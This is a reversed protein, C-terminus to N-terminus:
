CLLKSLLQAATRPTRPTFESSRSSPRSSPPTPTRLSINLKNLVREADLPVLGSAAFSNKITPNTSQFAELRAHQYDMLFDHKDIHNYGRRALDSVFRGYARKVVAFCGVDLPQLLHSSHAPMCLPIIDNETCIRDFQPTLHSGHGDLILLRFRGRVRSNTHTIFHKELWRLGIEDTTWGNKSVEIRWDKPLIEDFWGAIAVKGKFVICPPLPYGDACISEIATVWERNGPQLLSRRGYYEARTVVKQSSILGMAFGTEDFNYIDEPQIGNEDIVSQVTAFWKRISKPDENLARQYDYRRSFRTRLEPRRNIFTSPWNKGVTTPLQNGRAALLINAMDRVTSPRPAAGRSDMSIIWEVLSDEELQTLKHGTPRHDVRSQTGHARDRLTTEPLDYLRAAARLSQIRGEKLDSLALLIKGEQNALKHSSQSRIPPM